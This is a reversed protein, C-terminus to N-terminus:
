APITPARLTVGRDRRLHVVLAVSTVAAWACWLSAFGAQQFRALLGVAVLNVVGFVAIHRHSSALLSGCTALVYLSVVVFGYRLGIGYAIHYDALEATVPGSVMASLLVASVVVGIVGFTAMMLRRRRQPEFAIVALPVYVPLLVFAIALYIWMAARGVGHAVHGQLGWWVFAEVLQHVGFVLPLAAVPLESRRQVHRLADVGLVTVAIGGALDAQASFCV